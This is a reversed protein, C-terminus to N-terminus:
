KKIAMYARCEDENKVYLQYEMLGGQGQFSLNRNVPIKKLVYPVGEADLNNMTTMCAVEMSTSYILKMETKSFLSKFWEL